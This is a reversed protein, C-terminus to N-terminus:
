SRAQRWPKTARLESHLACSDAFMARVAVLTSKVTEPQKNIQRDKKKEAPDLTKKPAPRM